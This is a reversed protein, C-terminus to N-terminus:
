PSESVLWSEEMSSMEDEEVVKERGMTGVLTPRPNQAQSSFFDPIREATKTKDM